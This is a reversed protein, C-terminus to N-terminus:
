FWIRGGNNDSMSEENLTAQESTIDVSRLLSIFSPLTSSDRGFNNFANENSVRAKQAENEDQCHNPV